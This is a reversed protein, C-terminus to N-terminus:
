RFLKLIFRGAKWILILIEISFVASVAIMADVAPFIANLNHANGIVFAVVAPIHALLALVGTQGGFAALAGFLAAVFTVILIIKVFYSM